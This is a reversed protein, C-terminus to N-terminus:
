KAPSILKSAIGQTRQAELLTKKSGERVLYLSIYLCFHLVFRDLGIQVCTQQSAFTNKACIPPFPVAYVNLTGQYPLELFVMM